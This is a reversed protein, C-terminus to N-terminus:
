KFHEIAKDIAKLSLDMLKLREQELEFDLPM